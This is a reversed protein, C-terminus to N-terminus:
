SHQFTRCFIRGFGQKPRVRFSLDEPFVSECDFFIFFLRSFLRQSDIKRSSRNKYLQRWDAPRGVQAVEAEVEEELVVEEEAVVARSEEPGDPLAVLM